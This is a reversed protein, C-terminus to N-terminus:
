ITMVFYILTKEGMAHCIVFEAFPLLQDTFRGSM